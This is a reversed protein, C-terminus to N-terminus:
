KLAEAESAARAQVDGAPLVPTLRKDQEAMWGGGMAKYVSVLALLTDRRSAAQDAQATYLRLDADLVDFFTSQGGEYRLRALNAVEQLSVVQRGLAAEREGSKARWVLADEVEKLATQVAQKYRVVMQKQIAVAQRIDGEIRGGSLIPGVLGAGISGTRATQAWLWRTDDAGLGLAATLSVNPFYQTKAVGIRANAAVLDQEAGMVDPRRTLVDAPVGQPMQPLALTDMRRRKITGPNAGLLSSLANELTAIDREIVPIRASDAEVVARALEVALRTASGGQYKLDVLALADKRNKLAQQALELQKDLDILLMYTTAVGSVVTLMVGHRGEQTSLLEALAAENSRRVKGWLDIEWSVIGGVEFNNLYPSAGPKLGNPREQSRRERDTAVAYSAQPYNPARSIQLRSDFEEIRLAALMIDLNADLASQILRDLDADGFAKWWDTNTLDVANPLEARWAPPLPVDPRKYDPGLTCGVLGAAAVCALATCRWVIPLVFGPPRARRSSTKTRM